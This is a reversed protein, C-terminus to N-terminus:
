YLKPKVLLLGGFLEEFLKGLHFRNHRCDVFMATNKGM